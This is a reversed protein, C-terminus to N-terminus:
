EERVAGEIEGALLRFMADLEQHDVLAALQRIRRRLEDASAARVTIAIEEGELNHPFELRVGAPLRLQKVLDFLGVEVASLQPYRLERLVRKLAHITENRGRGQQLVAAVPARGFIEAITEGDRAKIDEVTDLIDRLQNEGLRLQEAVHLLKERDAHSHGLWRRLVAESFRREGAYTRIATESM